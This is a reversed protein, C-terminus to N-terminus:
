VPYNAFFEAFEILPKNRKVVGILEDLVTIVAIRFTLFRGPDILVYIRRTVKIRKGDATLLKGDPLRYALGIRTEGKVHRYIYKM